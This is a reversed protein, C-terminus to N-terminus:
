KLNIKHLDLQSTGCYSVIVTTGDVIYRNYGDGVYNSGIV